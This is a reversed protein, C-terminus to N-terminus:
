ADCECYASIDGGDCRDCWRRRIPMDAARADHTAGDHDYLDTVMRGCIRCRTPESM